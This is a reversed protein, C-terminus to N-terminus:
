PLLDAIFGFGLPLGVLLNINFAMSYKGRRALMYQIGLLVATLLVSAESAPGVISLALLIVTLVHLILSLNLTTERGFCAPISKVSLKRDIKADQIAQTWLRWCRRGRKLYRRGALPSEIAAPVLISEELPLRLSM